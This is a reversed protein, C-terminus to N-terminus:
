SLRKERRGRGPGRGLSAADRALMRLLFTANHAYRMFLRGPEQYLRYAWELGLRQLWRPSRPVRGAIFDLTAGIQVSVPVGLAQCNQHLWIEGKPQGFAVFLLHPRAARIRGVLAAHEEASLPRFPPVEVGAIQLAPFRVRLNQAARDAVGPAGGLLFIRYGKRAALECLGPFIDAGTVREPIRKERWRSAWVLPMGDALNFAAQRLIERFSADRHALMATHLNVTTFYSPQGRRILREVEDLTQQFTFTAFPVGWVDVSQPPALAEPSPAAARCPAPQAPEASRPLSLSLVANTM